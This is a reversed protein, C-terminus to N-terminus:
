DGIMSIERFTIVVKDWLGIIKHISSAYGDQGSNWIEWLGIGMEVQAMLQGENSEMQTAMTQEYTCKTVNIRDQFM